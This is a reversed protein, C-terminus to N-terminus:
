ILWNKWKLCNNLTFYVWMIISGCVCKTLNETVKKTDWSLFNYFVVGLVDNVRIQFRDVFYYLIM